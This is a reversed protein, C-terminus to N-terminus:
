TLKSQRIKPPLTTLACPDANGEAAPCRGRFAGRHSIGGQEGQAAADHRHIRAVLHVVGADDVELVVPDDRHLGRALGRRRSERLDTYDVGLAREVGAQDVQVVVEAVVCQLKPVHRLAVGIAVLPSSMRVITAQDAPRHVHKAAALTIGFGDRAVGLALVQEAADGRRLADRQETIGPDPAEIAAQQAVHFEGIAIVQRRGVRANAIDGGPVRCLEEFVQLGAAAQQQVQAFPGVIACAVVELREAEAGALDRDGIRQGADM